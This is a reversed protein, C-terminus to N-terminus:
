KIRGKASALTSELQGLSKPSKPSKALGAALVRVVALWRGVGHVRSGDM